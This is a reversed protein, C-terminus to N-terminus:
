IGEVFVGGSDTVTARLTNAVIAAIDNGETFVVYCGPTPPRSRVLAALAGKWKDYGLPGDKPACRIDAASYEACLAACVESIYTELRDFKTSPIANVYLELRSTTSQAIQPEVAISPATKVTVGPFSVTGDKTTTLVWPAESTSPATETVAKPPRGRKKPEPISASTVTGLNSDQGALTAVSPETTWVATPKPALLSNLELAKPTTLGEVPVAALIPKSEPADPPLLAPPPTTDIPLSMQVPPTLPPLSSIEAWLRAVDDPDDIPTKIVTALWGHSAFVMGPAVSQGGAQAVLMAARGTYGPSGRGSTEIAALAKIFEPPMAARRSVEEAQLKVIEANVGNSQSLLSMTGKPPSLRALLSTASGTGFIDNLSNSKKVVSCYALHPCGRFASCADPNADVKDAVTEKAADAITRIIGSAYEWGRAVHERLALTTVLKAEPRGRTRFYVHTLRAQELHPWMRFGVEAYVLLQVNNALEKASKTWKFDSTTKWDLSELTNPPDTQEDGEPDRYLGRHNWLDVRGVVAVGDVSLWPKVETEVLIGDGASPIFHKGAISTQSLLPAGHLLHNEIEAHIRSGAAMAPTQAVKKGDITEFWWRRLCGGASSTDAKTIGTASTRVLRGNILAPGYDPKDTM